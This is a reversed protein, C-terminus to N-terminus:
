HTNSRKNSKELETYKTRHIMTATQKINDNEQIITILYKEKLKHRNNSVLQKKGWSCFIIKWKRIWGAVRCRKIPSNYAILM